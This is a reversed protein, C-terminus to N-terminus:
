KFSLWFYSCLAAHKWEGNRRLCKIDITKKSDYHFFSIAIVQVKAWLHVKWIIFGYWVNFM